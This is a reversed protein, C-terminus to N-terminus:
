ANEERDPSFARQLTALAAAIGALDAGSLNQLREAVLAATGRHASELLATGNATLALVVRRRDNPADQRSVLGREVLGDVMKSMSPLGVGVHEAVESLTGGPRHSLFTLTRFQPVSLDPARLSRMNERISRMVGPVVEVLLASVAEISVTAVIPATVVPQGVTEGGRPPPINEKALLKM